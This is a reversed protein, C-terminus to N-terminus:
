INSYEDQDEGELVNKLQLAYRQKYIGVVGNYVHRNQIYNPLLNDTRTNLAIVDGPKLDIFEKITIRSRGVLARLNM